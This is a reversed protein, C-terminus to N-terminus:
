LIILLLRDSVTKSFMLDWLHTPYLHLLFLEYSSGEVRIFCHVNKNAKQKLSSVM